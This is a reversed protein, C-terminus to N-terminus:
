RDGGLSAAATGVSRRAQAPTHDRLVRASSASAAATIWIVPHDSASAGAPCPQAGNM